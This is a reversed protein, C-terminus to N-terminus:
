RITDCILNDLPLKEERADKLVEKNFSQLDGGYKKFHTLFGTAWRGCTAMDKDKKSQYDYDNYYVPVKTLSFMKTLTPYDEGLEKRKEPDTWTLPVDPKNGYSDFYYVKKKDRALAVWHGSNLSSEYLIFVVQGVKLFDEVGVERPLESYKLVKANPFYKNLDADSMAEHLLTDGEMGGEMCGGVMNKHKIKLYKFLEKAQDKAEKKQEKTNGENLVKVLKQHEKILTSLPMSIALQGAGQTHIQLAKLQKKARALPIGDPSFNHGSIRNIVSYGKKHKIIAFPM